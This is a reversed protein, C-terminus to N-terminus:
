ANNISTPTGNNVAKEENKAEELKAQLVLKQPLLGEVFAAMAEEGGSFLELVLQNYAETQMFDRSIEPSKIFKRGDPSKIGYAHTVLEDFLELIAAGDKTQIMRNILEKLGGPTKIDKKLLETENLGFYHDETRMEGNYDEFTIVKKLM